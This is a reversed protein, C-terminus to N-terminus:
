IFRTKKSFRAQPSTQQGSPSHCFPCVQTKGVGRLATQVNSHCKGEKRKTIIMWFCLFTSPHKEGLLWWPARWKCVIHFGISLSMRVAIKYEVEVIHRYFKLGLLPHVRPKLTALNSYFEGNIEISPNWQCWDSNFDRGNGSIVSVLVSLSM